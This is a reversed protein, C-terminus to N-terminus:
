DTPRKKRKLWESYHALHIHSNLDREIFTKPCYPCKVFIKEKFYFVKDIDKQLSQYLITTFETKKKEYAEILANSPKSISIVNIPVYCRNMKDFYSLRKWYFRDKFPNYKLRYPRINVKNTTRNIGATQFEAHLLVRSSKDLFATFPSTFILIFNKERCTQLLLNISKNIVSQFNKHSLDVGADDWVVVNGKREPLNNVIDIIDKAWFGVRDVSFTPDLAEALALASYSKGSGTPGTIACLWNKNHKIRNLVYPIWPNGKIIM